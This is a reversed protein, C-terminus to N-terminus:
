PGAAGCAQRLRLLRCRVCQGITKHAAGGMGETCANLRAAVGPYLPASDISWTQSAHAEMGHRQHMRGFCPTRSVPHLPCLAFPAQPQAPALHSSIESVWPM